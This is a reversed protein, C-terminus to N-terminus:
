VQLVFYLTDLSVSTDIIWNYGVVQLKFYILSSGWDVFKVSNMASPVYSTNVLLM